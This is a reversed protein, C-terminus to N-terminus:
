QITAMIKKLRAITDKISMRKAPSVFVTHYLIDFYQKAVFGNKVGVVSYFVEPEDEKFSDLIRLFLVGLAYSDWTTYTTQIMHNYVDKWPQDVFNSLYTKLTKRLQELTSVPMVDTSFVNNQTTQKATSQTGYQFQKILEDIEEESVKKFGSEKITIKRVIYNCVFIEFCWPTYTDYVYFANSPNLEKWFVSIGFDILIPHHQVPEVMINGSKIDMHIIDAVLLGRVGHLLRIHSQILQNWVFMPPHTTGINRFYTDISTNGLFRIKNSVYEKSSIAIDTEKKFVECKKVDNVYKKAIKVPCQKSIPAYYNRFFPIKKRIRRSIAWENETTSNQKQIKTVYRKNELKGNCKIGPHYICGYAGENILHIDSTSEKDEHSSDEPTEPTEPTNLLTKEVPNLEEYDTM